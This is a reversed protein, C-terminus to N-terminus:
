NNWKVVNGLHYENMSETILEKEYNNLPATDNYVLVEELLSILESEPKSKFILLLDQNTINEVEIM